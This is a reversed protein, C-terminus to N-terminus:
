IAYKERIINKIESKYFLYFFDNEEKIPLVPFILPKVGFKKELFEFSPLIKEMFFKHEADNALLYNDFLVGHCLFLALYKCYYGDDERVKLFWKSIDVFTYPDKTANFLGGHFDILSLDDRVSIDQLCKGENTNINVINKYSYLLRGHKDQGEIFGLRALHYKEPNKMVLKAVYYNCYVPDLGFEKVTDRFFFFEQNPTHISRAFVAKQDRPDLFDPFDEGLYELVAQQLAKNQKRAKLEEMIVPFTSYFKDRIELSM